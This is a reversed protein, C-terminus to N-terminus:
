RPFHLSSALDWGRGSSSSCSIGARDCPQVPTASSSKTALHSTAMFAFNLISPSRRNYVAFGPASGLSMNLTGTVAQLTHLFAPLPTFCWQKM